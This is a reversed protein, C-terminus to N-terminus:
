TRQSALQDLEAALATQWEPTTIGFVRNLRTLDFRSNGPRKAKTPYDATVIPVVSEVALAAGRAKLGAVIALAFGHWSTEGAAAVNVLGGSASFCDFHTDLAQQVMSAVVGAILPAPTPAGFQDSVIRLEKRDKGLRVISRLFNTGNAAYVWSTRIILHPGGLRRIAAEGALKSAGYVSLPNVPDDERWPRNIAGDFVYDTSFHILPVGREAAWRALAAPAEANVRFALQREDEARDVATYAAPNIILDPAIRNLTSNIRDPQALDLEDRGAPVISSIPELVKLLAGGVQGTVGTVM